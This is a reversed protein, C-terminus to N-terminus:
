APLVEAPGRPPATAALAPRTESACSSAAARGSEPRGRLESVSARQGLPTPLGRVGGRAPADWHRRRRASTPAIARHPQRVGPARRGVGPGGPVRADAGGVVPEGPRARSLGQGVRADQDPVSAFQSIARLRLGRARAEDTEAVARLALTMGLGLRAEGYTPALDLAERYSREADKSEHAALDVFGLAAHLRPDRPREQIAALVAAEGANALSADDDGADGLLSAQLRLGGTDVSLRNALSARMRLAAPGEPLGTIIRPRSCLTMFALAALGLLALLFGLAPLSRGRVPALPPPDM